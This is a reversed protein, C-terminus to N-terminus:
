QLFKKLRKRLAIGICSAAAIKIVDGVLFPVVCVLLAASFDSKTQFSYWATGISYCVATGLVMSLPYIFKKNEYKKVLLGIVFACPIYGILYGGTLGAIRQFGGTFSSFVPLGAAGILIYIVVSIVSHKLDTSCAIVYVAFTALSVPIAGVPFSIPALVCLVAALIGTFAISKIKSFSKM